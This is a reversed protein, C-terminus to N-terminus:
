QGLRRNWWIPPVNVSEGMNYARCDHCQDSFDPPVFTLCYEYLNNEIGYSLDFPEFTWRTCEEDIVGFYGNVTWNEDDSEFNTGVGFPPQDYLGGKDKQAELDQWFQYYEKSIKEQHILASFYIYMRENGHTKAFFLKQDFGEKINNADFLVVDDLYFPTRVWCTKKPSNLDPELPAQYVWLPDYTWKYYGKNQSAEFHTYLNFGDVQRGVPENAYYVYEYPNDEEIHFGGLANGGEPMSEWTSHFSVGNEMEVVLRYALSPQAKFQEDLLVYEGASMANETYVWSGGADSELRVVAGTIPEDRVNDVDNLAKLVVKFYRGDSPFNLSDFFSLDSISANIVIGQKENVVNFDYKEVCSLFLIAMVIWVVKQM